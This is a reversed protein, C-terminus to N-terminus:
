KLVAETRGKSSSQLICVIKSTATFHFVCLSLKHTVAPGSASM